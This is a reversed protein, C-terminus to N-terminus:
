VMYLLEQTIRDQVHLLIIFICMLFIWISHKMWLWGTSYQLSHYKTIYRRDIQCCKKRLYPSGTYRPWKIKHHYLFPLPDVQVILNAKSTWKASIGVGVFDLSHRLRRTHIVQYHGPLFSWSLAEAPVPLTVQLILM